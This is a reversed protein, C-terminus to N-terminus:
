AGADYLAYIVAWSMGLLVVFLLLALVDLKKLARRSSAIGWGMAFTHLGNALHYSVALTGLLYVALTPMHTRMFHAIHEFEEPHGGLARPEIMAKWVHAGLFALVGLASLRQVVYKLNEYYKYRVVNPRTTFLRGIGWVTHLGLPLLAVLSTVFFAVRHPYETVDREWEAAGRFASLNHWLHAITWVGLPLVALLSGLRARLFARDARRTTTTSAATM